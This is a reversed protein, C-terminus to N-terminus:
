IKKDAEKFSIYRDNDEDYLTLWLNKYCDNMSLEIINDLENTNKKLEEHFRHLNYGPISPYMHHIHHYEIGVTFFSLYNPVQIFSSGLLGSDKKNWKKTTAVYPPNFTHENHFIMLGISFTIVESILYHYIIDSDMHMFLLFIGLNNLITDFLIINISTKYANNNNYQILLENFRYKVLFILSAIVTFFVLPSRIIRYIYKMNGMENYDKLTKNVTENQNSQGSNIIGRVLLLWKSEKNGSTLHHYHHDYKWCFPTFVFIGLISGIVYNLRKNPTYSNHGCDHFIIFTRVNMLSQLPITLISLYSDRFYWMSYFSTIFCTTHKLIDKFGEYYTPKYKNFLKLM